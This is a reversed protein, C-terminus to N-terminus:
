ANVFIRIRARLGRIIGALAIKINLLINQRILLIFKGAIKIDKTDNIRKMCYACLHGQEKLLSDRLQKKVDSDMDDFRANMQYRYKLLLDPESKKQIYIM